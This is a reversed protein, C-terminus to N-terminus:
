CCVRICQSVRVMELDLALFLNRAVRAARRACERGDQQRRAAQQVLARSGEPVMPPLKVRVERDGDCM